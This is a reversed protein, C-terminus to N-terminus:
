AMSGFPNPPSLEYMSLLCIVTKAHAATLGVDRALQQGGPFSCGGHPPLPLLGIMNRTRTRTPANSAPPKAAHSLKPMGFEDGMAVAAAGAVSIL